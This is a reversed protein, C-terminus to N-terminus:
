SQFYIWYYVLSSLYLLLFEYIM